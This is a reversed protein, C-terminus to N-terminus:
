IWGRILVDQVSFPNGPANFGEIPMTVSVTLESVSESKRNNITIRFPHRCNNARVMFYVSAWEDFGLM